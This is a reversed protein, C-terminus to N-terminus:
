RGGVGAGSWRAHAAAQHRASKPVATMEPDLSAIMKAISAQAMRIEGALEASRHTSRQIDNVEAALLKKLVEIRDATDEILTLTAKESAKWVVGSPLGTDLLAVLRQGATQTDTM